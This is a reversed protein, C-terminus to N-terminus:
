VSKWHLRSVQKNPETSSSISNNKKGLASNHISGLPRTKSNLSLRGSTNKLGNVEIGNVCM